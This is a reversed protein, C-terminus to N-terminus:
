RFERKELFERAREGEEKNGTLVETDYCLVYTAQSLKFTRRTAFLVNNITKADLRDLDDIVIIVRRDIRRLVEDIDDLLEDVTEQSPELSLKFGLFSVDAKGKILRSYRSAAPRFEPAFVRDQIVASLDRILRDALDPESAYRLPEFRCVLVKDAADEWYREVLNIFSTKGVGWPGDVGFVLGPHSGSALVTEAFSKAQVENTLLDDKKDEIEEDAIFYIQSTQKKSSSRKQLFPSLLIFCFLLLIAPAWQPDASQFAAHIKALWPSALKNSWAGIVVGALLDIRYSRVIRMAALHANRKVAYILCIGLGILVGIAKLCLSVDVIQQAFSTGLLFFIRAVEAGVFGIFLMRAFVLLEPMKMASPKSAM